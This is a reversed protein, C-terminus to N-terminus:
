RKDLWELFEKANEPNIIKQLGALENLANQLSKVEQGIDAFLLSDHTIEILNVEANYSKVDHKECYVQNVDANGNMLMILRAIDGCDSESCLKQPTYSNLLTIIHHVTNKAAPDEIIRTTRFGHFQRYDLLACEALTKVDLTFPPADIEEETRIEQVYFSVPFDYNIEMPEENNKRENTNCAQM